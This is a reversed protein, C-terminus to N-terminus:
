CLMDCCPPSYCTARTQSGQQTTNHQTSFRALACALPCWQQEFRVLHTCCWAVDTSTSVNLWKWIQTSLVWWTVVRRLMTALHACCAAVLMTSIRQTSINRFFHQTSINRNAPAEYSGHKELHKVIIADALQSKSVGIRNSEIRCNQLQSSWDYIWIKRRLEFIHFKM